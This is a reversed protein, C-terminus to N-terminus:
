LRFDEDAPLNLLDVRLRVPGPGGYSHFSSWPWDEPKGALGKKVPNLHMYDLAHRYEKVTRIARDFYRLQWFEGQARRRRNIARSSAIKLAGMLRPLTDGPAPHILGHWHDSMFVYGSLLFRRRQRIRNFVGALIEFEKETLARRTRLVNCTVFFIKGSVLLRRLRSM